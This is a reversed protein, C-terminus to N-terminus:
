PNHHDGHGDGAPPRAPVGYWRERWTKMRAVERAQSAIIEEALGRLTPNRGKELQERAMTVAGEHHPIMMDIFERDFPRAGRLERADHDLGRTHEDGSMHAGEHADGLDAEVSRMTEIERLQTAIIDGALQRIERHEGDRRAIEAMEVASEHHPVMDRVFAADTATAGGGSDGHDDHGGCGAISLAALAALVVVIRRSALM